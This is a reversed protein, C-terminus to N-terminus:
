LSESHRKTRLCAPDYKPTVCSGVRVRWYSHPIVFTQASFFGVNVHATFANVYGLALDEVCATPHGDHLLAFVDLGASRIELFWRRAMSRLEAPPTAFWEEVAPDQKQAGALTFFRVTSMDRFELADRGSWATTLNSSVEVSSNNARYATM